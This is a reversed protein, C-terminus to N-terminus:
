EAAEKAAKKKDRYRQMRARHLEREHDNMGDKHAERYRKVQGRSQEITKEKRATIVDLFAEYERVLDKEDETTAHSQLFQLVRGLLDLYVRSVYM